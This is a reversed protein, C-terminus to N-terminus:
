LPVLTSSSVASQEDTTRKKMVKGQKTGVELGLCLRFLLYSLFPYAPPPLPNAQDVVALRQILLRTSFFVIFTISHISVLFYYFINYSQNSCKKKFETYNM